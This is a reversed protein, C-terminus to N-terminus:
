KSIRERRFSLTHRHNQQAVTLLLNTFHQRTCAVIMHSTSGTGPQKSCRDPVLVSEWVGIIHWIGLVTVASGFREGDCVVVRGILYRKLMACYGANQCPLLM